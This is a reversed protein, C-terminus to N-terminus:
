STPASLAYLLVAAAAAVNLSDVDPAIPITVEEDALDLLDRRLGEGEHGLLLVLHAPRALRPLPTARPSLTAALVRRGEARLRAVEGRLDECVALPQTFVHGMAARVARPSFPDAGRDDLLLLHAGFARCDRVLAGVNAPDGLGQAAVITTRARELPPGVVPSPAPRRALALCGRHLEVGAIAELVDSAAVLVPVDARVHARLRELRAPTTLVSEVVFTSALLRTVALEGEVVFRTPDRAPDRARGKLDRYADVRPDDPSSVLDTM